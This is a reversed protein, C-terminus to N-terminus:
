MRKERGVWKTEKKKAKHNAWRALTFFVDSLRNLYIITCPHLKHRRNATVLRREATRAQTRAIHLEAELRVHTSGPYIFNRLEPLGEEYKQITNELFEILEEGLYPLAPHNKRSPLVATHAQVRFLHDQIKELLEDLEKSRSLTRIVGVRSILEDLVGAAEIRPDDKCVKENDKSGFALHTKGRDGRGINPKM